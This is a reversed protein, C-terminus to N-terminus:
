CFKQQTLIDGTEFQSQWVARSQSVTLSLSQHSVGLGISKDSLAGDRASRAQTWAPCTGPGSRGENTEWSCGSSNAQASAGGM